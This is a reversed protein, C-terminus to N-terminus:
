SGSAPPRQLRQVFVAHEPTAVGQQVAAIMRPLDLALLAPGDVWLGPFTRSRYIGQADPQVDSADPFHFWHLAAEEISVVLYEIV